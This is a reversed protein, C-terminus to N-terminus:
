APVSVREHEAVIQVAERLTIPFSTCITAILAGSVVSLPLQLREVIADEGVVSVTAAAALIADMNLVVRSHHDTVHEATATM